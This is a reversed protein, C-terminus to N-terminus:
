SRWRLCYFCYRSCNQCNLNYSYSNTFFPIGGNMTYRIDTWFFEQNNILTFLALMLGPILAWMLFQFLPKLPYFVKLLFNFVKVSNPLLWIYTKNNKESWM